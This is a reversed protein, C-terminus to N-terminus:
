RVQNTYSVARSYAFHPQLRERLLAQTQLVPDDIQQPNFSAFKREAEHRVVEGNEFWVVARPGQSAQPPLGALLQDLAVDPPLPTERVLLVLTEMGPPGPAVEWGGEKGGQAKEEPLRLSPLPREDAPRQDWRGQRWPYIPQVEGATDILIVYLYAPRNLEAEVRVRDGAKLPLAAGQNLRVDQRRRNGPEWVRADIWGKFPPLAVVEPAPEVTARSRLSWGVALGGVALGLLVLGAVAALWHRRFWGREAPVYATTAPSLAPTTGDLWHTLARAFDGASPYRDAPRRAMAKQMIAVLSPDLDARLQAPSPPAQNAIQRIILQPTGQFPLRGTLMQYLVVGLSYVDSLPGATGMDPDVQEPAMYAPTGVMLGEATLHEADGALQALGFDSLLAQGTTDLLINGPKLDRHVIGHAHVAELAEAIQRVLTVAQRCDDFRGHQLQEALSHGEVLAMVVYPWGAHEGVDHIPCVHPHRVRAAARAERLFRQVRAQAEPSGDFRPVKVAVVRQLQPDDARYVVGMGGGGIAAHIRYRGIRSPVAVVQEGPQEPLTPTPKQPTEAGAHSLSPYLDKLRHALSAMVEADALPGPPMGPGRLADLLSDGAPPTNLQAVCAGCTELHDELREADAEVLLGSQFLRLM